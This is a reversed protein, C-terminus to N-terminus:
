LRDSTRPSIWMAEAAHSTSLRSLDRSMVSRAAVADAAALKGLEQDFALM